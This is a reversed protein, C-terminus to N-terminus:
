RLHDELGSPALPKNVAAKSQQARRCKSDNEIGYDPSLPVGGAGAHVLVPLLTKRRVIDSNEPPQDLGVEGVHHTVRQASIFADSKDDGRQAKHSNQTQRELATKGRQSKQGPRKNESKRGRNKASIGVAVFPAYFLM